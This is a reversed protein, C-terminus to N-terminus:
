TFSLFSIFPDNLVWSKLSQKRRTINKNRMQNLKEIKPGM